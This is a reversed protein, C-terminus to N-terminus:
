SVLRLSSVVLLLLLLCVGNQLKKKNNIVSSRIAPSATNKELLPVSSAPLLVEPARAIHANGVFVGKFRDPLYLLKKHLFFIIILCFLFNRFNKCV